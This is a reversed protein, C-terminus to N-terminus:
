GITGAVSAKVATNDSNDSLLVDYIADTLEQAYISARRDGADVSSGREQNSLSPSNHFSERAPARLHVSCWGPGLPSSARDGHPGPHIAGVVLGLSCSALPAIDLSDRMEVLGGSWFM